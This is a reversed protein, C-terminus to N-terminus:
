LSFLQMQNLVITAAGDMQNTLGKNSGFCGIFKMMSVDQKFIEQFPETGASFAAALVGCAAITAHMTFAM